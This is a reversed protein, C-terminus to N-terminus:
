EIARPDEAMQGELRNETYELYAKKSQQLRRSKESITTTRSHSTTSDGNEQPAASEKSAEIKKVAGRLELSVLSITINSRFLNFRATSLPKTLIDALECTTNAVAKYEAETSSRAITPQKKSGWSVLNNGFFICFGGISKRDDPCGAWDADSFASLTLPSSKSFYLGFNSTLKLYRLIRKVAQWHPIKPNHMYQCVKNVAFSIDPRTFSLYQLSGVVSRYLHPDEFSSGDFASIKSSVSMPTSVAKSNHM